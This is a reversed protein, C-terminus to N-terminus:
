RSPRHNDRRQRRDFLLQMMLYVVIPYSIYFWHVTCLRGVCDFLKRGARATTAVEKPRTQSQARANSGFMRLSDLSESLQRELRDLRSNTESLGHQLRLVALSFQDGMQGIISSQLQDLSTPTKYGSELIDGGTAQPTDDLMSVSSGGSSSQSQTDNNNNTNRRSEM